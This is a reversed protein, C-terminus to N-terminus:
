PASATRAPQPILCMDAVYTHVADVAEVITLKDTDLVVEPDNPEEYRADVGTFDKLLGARAKAYLGKPDRRECTAVEAKIYVECFRDGAAARAAARDARFPSILAAIAIAGADAFLAAAEAVRRVNEHRDRPSFGLDRSLGSRLNDGDLVYAFYGEHFLREELRM